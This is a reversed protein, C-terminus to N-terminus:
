SLFDTFFAHLSPFKLDLDHLDRKQLGPLILASVAARRLLSLKGGQPTERSLGRQLKSPVACALAYLRATGYWIQSLVCTIQKGTIFAGHTLNSVDLFHVCIVLIELKKEMQYLIGLSARPLFFYHLCGISSWNTLLWLADRPLGM